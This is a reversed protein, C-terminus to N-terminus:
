HILTNKVSSVSVVTVLEYKGGRIEKASHKM